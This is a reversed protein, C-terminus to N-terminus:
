SNYVTYLMSESSSGSIAVNYRQGSTLSTFGAGVSTTSVWWTEGPPPTLGDNAVYTGLLTGSIDTITPRMGTLDIAGTATGVVVVLNGVTGASTGTDFYDIRLETYTSGGSSGSSSTATAHQPVVLATVAPAVYVAGTTLGLKKLASRRGENVEKSM